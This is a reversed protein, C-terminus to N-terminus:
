GQQQYARAIALKEEETLTYPSEWKDLPKAYVRTNERSHLSSLVFGTGQGDIIAVAFSQNGGTNRFPNYRVFGMWQMSHKLTREMQRSTSQLASVVEVAQRMEDMHRNLSDQLNEDEVGTMLRQYQAIMRSMRVQLVVIWAIAGCLAVALGILVTNVFPPM